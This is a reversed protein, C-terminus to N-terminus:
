VMTDNLRTHIHLFVYSTKIEHDLASIFKSLTITRDHRTNNYYYCEIFM